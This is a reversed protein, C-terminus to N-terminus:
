DDEESATSRNFDSGPSSRALFERMRQLDERDSLWAGPSSSPRPSSTSRPGLDPQSGLWSHSFDSLNEDDSSDEAENGAGLNSPELDPVEEESETDSALFDDDSDSDSEEGECNRDCAVAQHAALGLCIQLRAAELAFCPQLMDPIGLSDTIATLTRATLRSVVAADNPPGSLQSRLSQTNRLSFAGGWTDSDSSSHSSVSTEEDESTVEDEGTESEPENHSSSTEVLAVAGAGIRRRQQFLRSNLTVLNSAMTSPSAATERGWSQSWDEGM